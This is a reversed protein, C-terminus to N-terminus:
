PLPTPLAFVGEPGQPAVRAERERIEHEVAELQDAVLQSWGSELQKQLATRLQYPPLAMWHRQEKTSFTLIVRAAERYEEARLLAQAWTALAEGTNVSHQRVAREFAKFASPRDGFALCAKGYDILGCYVGDGDRHVFPAAPDAGLDRGLLRQFVRDLGARDRLELLLGALERTLIVRGKAHAEYAAKESAALQERLGAEQALNGTAPAGAASTSQAQTASPMGLLEGTGLLVLVVVMCSGSKM